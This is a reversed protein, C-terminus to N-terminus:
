SQEQRDNNKTKELVRWSSAPHRNFAFHPAKELGENRQVTCLYLLIGVGGFIKRIKNQLFGVEKEKSRVGERRVGKSRIDKWVRRSPEAAQRSGEV